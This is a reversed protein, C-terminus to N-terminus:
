FKISFLKLGNPKDSYPDLTQNQDGEGYVKSALPNILQWPTRTKVMQSVIGSYIIRRGKIENPAEVKQLPVIKEKKEPTAEEFTQGKGEWVVFGVMGIVFFIQKRAKM